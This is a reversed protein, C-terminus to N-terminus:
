SMDRNRGSHSKNEIWVMTGQEAFRDRRREPAEPANPPFVRDGARIPPENGLIRGFYRCRRRELPTTGSV